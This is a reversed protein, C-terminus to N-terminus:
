TLMPCRRRCRGEGHRAHRPRCVASRRRRRPRAGRARGRPAAREGAPGFRRRDAIVQLPEM